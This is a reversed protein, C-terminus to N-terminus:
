AAAGTYREPEREFQRRCNEACFYYTKGQHEAKGGPPNSEDVEMKCVPDWAM